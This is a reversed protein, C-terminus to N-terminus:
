DVSISADPALWWGDLVPHQAVPSVQVWPGQASDDGANSAHEDLAQRAAKVADNWLVLRAESGDRKVITAEASFRTEPLGEIVTTAGLHALTGELAEAPQSGQNPIPEVATGALSLELGGQYGAKVLPGRLRVGQGPQLVAAHADIDADWLVLHIEGSADALRVRQLRGQTGNKRQFTRTADRDLVAVELVGVAGPRLDAVRLYRTQDHGTAAAELRAATRPAVLGKPLQM